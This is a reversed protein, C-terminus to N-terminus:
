DSIDINRLTPLQGGEAFKARPSYKPIKAGKYFQIFDDLTFRKDKSNIYNM